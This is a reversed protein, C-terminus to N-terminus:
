FLMSANGKKQLAKMAKAYRKGLERASATNFHLHDPNATLGAASVVATNTAHQPLQQLLVNFAKKDETFYGLEGAVFPIAPVNLEKRFREVLATLTDIYVARKDPSADAEGQHWIIGKLVGRKMAAAARQIADDYPHTNTKNDFAGPQWLGIATGGVACPILGIKINKHHTDELMSQAFGIAPGVGAEKKDFHVPDTAPVWQQDKTFMFVAPHPITSLSDPIGRGAMNSQGVLLYLHFNSDTGPLPIPTTASLQRGPRCGTCVLILTLVFLPLITKKLPYAMM